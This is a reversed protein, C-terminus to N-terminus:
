SEQLVKRGNSARCSWPFRSSLVDHFSCCSSSGGGSRAASWIHQPRCWTACPASWLLLATLSWLWRYGPLVSAAPAWMPGKLPGKQGVQSSTRLQGTKARTFLDTTKPKDSECSQSWSRSSSGRRSPRSRHTSPPSTCCETPNKAGRWPKIQSLSFVRSSTGKPRATEGGSGTVKREHSGRAKEEAWERGSCGTSFLLLPGTELQLEFLDLDVFRTHPGKLCVSCFNLRFLFCM